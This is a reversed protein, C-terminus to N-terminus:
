VTGTAEAPPASHVLTPSRDGAAAAAAPRRLALRRVFPRQGAAAGGGGWPTARRKGGGRKAEEAQTGEGEERDPDPQGEPHPRTLLVGRARRVRELALLALAERSLSQWRPSWLLMVMTVGEQAQVVESQQTKELVGGGWGVGGRGRTHTHTQTHVRPACARVCRSVRPEQHPDNSLQTRLERLILALTPSLDM